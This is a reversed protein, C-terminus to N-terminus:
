NVDYRRKFTTLIGVSPLANISLQLKHSPSESVGMFDSKWLLVDECLIMRDVSEKEDM